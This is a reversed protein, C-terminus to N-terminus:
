PRSESHFSTAGSSERPFLLLAKTSSPARGPARPQPSPLRCCSPVAARVEHAASFDIPRNFACSFSRPAGTPPLNFLLVVGAGRAHRRIPMAFKRGHIRNADAPAKLLQAVVGRIAVKSVCSVWPDVPLPTAAAGCSITAGFSDVPPPCAPRLLWCPLDASLVEIALWRRRRLITSISRAIFSAGDAPPSHLSRCTAWRREDTNTRDHDM